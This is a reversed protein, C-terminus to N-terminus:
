NLHKELVKIWKNKKFYDWKLCSILVFISMIKRNKKRVKFMLYSRLYEYDESKKVRVIYSILPKTPFHQVILNKDAALKQSDTPFFM